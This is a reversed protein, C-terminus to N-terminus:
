IDMSKIPHQGLHVVPAFQFRHVRAVERVDLSDIRYAETPRWNPETGPPVWRWLRNGHLVDGADVLEAIRSRKLLATVAGNAMKRDLSRRLWESVISRPILVCSRAPDIAKSSFAGDPRQHSAIALMLIGRLEEAQDADADVAIQRSKLVAAIEASGDIKSLVERQWAGFRIYQGQEVSPRRLVAICDSVLRARNAEFFAALRTEWTPDFGRRALVIRVSRSSMDASLSADNMTFVYLLYNPIAANGLHPKWGSVTPATILGELDGSSLKSVKCNDFAVINVATGDTLLRKKITEVNETLQCDIHGGGLNAIAYMLQSKGVGRGNDEGDSEISIAPRAGPRGGWFPTCFAAKILARDHETKPLWFDVLEDLAGSYEAGYQDCNAYFVDRLRPEHPLTRIGSITPVAEALASLFEAKSICGEGRSWLVQINQAAVWGFFTAEKRFVRTVGGPEIAVLEGALRRFKMPAVLDIVKQAIDASPIGRRQPKGEVDVFTYNSVIRM